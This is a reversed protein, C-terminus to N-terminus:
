GKIQKTKKMAIKYLLKDIKSFLKAIDIGRSKLEEEIELIESDEPSIGCVYKSMLQYTSLSKVNM